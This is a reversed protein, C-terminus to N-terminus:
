RAAPMGPCMRQRFAADIDIRWVARKEGPIRAPAGLLVPYRQVDDGRGWIWFREGDAAACLRKSLEADGILVRKGM